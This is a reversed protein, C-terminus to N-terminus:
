EPTGCLTYHHEDKRKFGKSLGFDAFHLHGDLDLLLNEPKLDRHIFNNTHLMHLGVLVEAIYFKAQDETFM